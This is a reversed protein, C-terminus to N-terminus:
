AAPDPAGAGAPGPVAPAAAAPPAPRGDEAGADSRTDVSNYILLLGVAATGMGARLLRPMGSAPGGTM